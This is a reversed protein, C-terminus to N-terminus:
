DPHALPTTGSVPTPTRLILHEMNIGPYPLLSALLSVLVQGVQDPDMMREQVQGHHTWVDMAKALIEADFKRGFDTPFTAGVGVTGFRIKPHELRWGALSVELAAKSASYAALAWRPMTVVESSLALVVAGEALTPVLASIVSNVGIVNTQLVERWDADTMTALLKLQAMGVTSILADVPGFLEAVGALHEVEGPQLLDVTCVTGNGAESRIADLRDRRRGCLLVDGGAALARRAVAAGIGSSAGLVVLKKSDLKNEFASM